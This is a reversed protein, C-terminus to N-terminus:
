LVYVRNSSVTGAIKKGVVDEITEKATTGVNDTVGPLYGIEIACSFAKDVIKGNALARETHPNAFAEAVKKIEDKSFHADTTYSDVIVVSELGRAGLMKFERAGGLARTDAITLIIDFRTIQM